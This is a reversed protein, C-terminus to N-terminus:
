KDFFCCISSPARVSASPGGLCDGAAAYPAYPWDGNHIVSGPLFQIQYCFLVWALQSRSPQESVHGIHGHACPLSPASLQCGGDPQSAALPGNLSPLTM